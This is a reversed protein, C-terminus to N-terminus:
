VVQQEQHRPLFKKRRDVNQILDVAEVKQLSGGALLISGKRRLLYTWGSEEKFWRRLAAGAKTKRQRPMRKREEMGGIKLEWKEANLWLAVQM